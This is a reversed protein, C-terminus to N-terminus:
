ATVRGKDKRVQDAEPARKRSVMPCCAHHWRETTTATHVVVMAAGAKIPRRCIDCTM